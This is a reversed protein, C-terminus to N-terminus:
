FKYNGWGNDIDQQSRPELPYGHHLGYCSGGGWGVVIDTLYPFFVHQTANRACEEVTDLKGLDEYSGEYQEWAGGKAGEQNNM